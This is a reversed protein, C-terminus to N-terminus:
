DHKTAEKLQLQITLKKGIVVHMNFISGLENHIMMVANRYMALETFNCEQYLKPILKIPITLITRYERKPKIACKRKVRKKDNFSVFNRFVKVFDNCNM